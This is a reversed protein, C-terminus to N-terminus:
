SFTCAGCPLLDGKLNRTTPGSPWRYRSRACQILRRSVVLAAVLFLYYDVVAAREDPRRRVDGYGSMWSHRREVLRRSGAEPPAPMENCAIAGELGFEGLLARPGALTGGLSPRQCSLRRPLSSPLCLRRPSSSRRRAQSATSQM